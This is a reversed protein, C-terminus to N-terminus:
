IESIIAENFEDTVLLNNSDIVLVTRLSSIDCALDVETLYANHEPDLEAKAVYGLTVGEPFILSFGTTIVKAGIDVKAYKSLGEMQVRYRDTGDWTISAAHGEGGEIEGSTRFKRNLISMVVTHRDNVAMVVGVAERKPTVVAMGIRIGDQLGRDLILYNEARNVTNSIVHAAQYRTGQGDVHSLLNLLSDREMANSISLGHELEAIRAILVENERRLRFYDGVSGFVKGVGSTITTSYSLTKAQTYSDSSAYLYIAGGELALFLFLTYTNRLFELLRYM